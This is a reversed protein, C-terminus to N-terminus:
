FGSALEVWQAHDAGTDNIGRTLFRQNGGDADMVWLEPVRGVDARMYAMRTGDLSFVPRFYWTPPDDHTIPTIEGSSPDILCMQTGGRALEPHYDRNFHDTDPRDAQYPWATRSDALLLAAAIKRGDPSWVPGNSGSSHREPTGCAAAFWHSQGTTLLRHESGDSRSLCIDSRDHGPDNLHECRVYVLWQGDPSWKPAFHIYDHDSAILVQKGSAIDVVFIEYGPREPNSTIHFAAKAGDPSLSAGYAYGSMSCFEERDAGKFDCTYFTAVNDTNECVVFRDTDPVVGFIGVFSPLKIEQMTRSTLDYLWLHTKAFAGGDPDSFAANPNKPPEQSWLVARRGDPFVYGMQWYVQNPASFEPYVEHTGDPRITGVRRDSIFVITEM